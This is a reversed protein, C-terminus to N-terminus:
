FKPEPKAELELTESGSETLNTSGSKFDPDLLAFIVRFLFFFVSIENKSTSSTKKQPSFALYITFIKEATCKEFFIVNEKM